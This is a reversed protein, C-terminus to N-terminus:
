CKVVIIILKKQSYHLLKQDLSSYVVDDEFKELFSGDVRWLDVIQSAGFFDQAQRDFLPQQQWALGALQGQYTRV